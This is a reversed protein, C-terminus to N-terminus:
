SILGKWTVPRPDTGRMERGLALAERECRQVGLWDGALQLENMRTRLKDQQATLGAPARAGGRAARRIQAAAAGQGPVGCEHKHGAKWAATQSLTLFPLPHASAPVRAARQARASTGGVQCAKSCYAEAKCKSCQLLPPALTKRCTANGCALAAGAAPKAATKKPMSAPSSDAPDLAPPRAAAAYDQM